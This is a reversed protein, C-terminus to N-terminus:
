RRKGLRAMEEDLQRLKHQAGVIKGNVRIKEDQIEELRSGVQGSPIQTRMGAYREDVQVSMQSVMNQLSLLTDRSAELVALGDQVRRQQEHWAENLTVNQRDLDENSHGAKVPMNYSSRIVTRHLDITTALQNARNSQQDKRRQIIAHLTQALKLMASLDDQM